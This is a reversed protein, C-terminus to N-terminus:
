WGLIAADFDSNNPQCLKIYIGYDVNENIKRAGGDAFAAIVVAPHNSSPRATANAPDVGPQANIAYIETDSAGYTFALDQEIQNDDVSTLGVSWEGAQLNESIVVTKTTSKIEDIKVGYYIVSGDASRSRSPAASYKIDTASIAGTSASVLTSDDNVGGNIVYSIGPGTSTAGSSKCKLVPITFKVYDAVGTGRVKDYLDQEEIVPLLQVVWSYSGTTGAQGKMLSPFGNAGSAAAVLQYAIQRQNSVCVAGRGSERASQIAPLLLGALMGIISIVVLLEILTFGLNIQLKKM